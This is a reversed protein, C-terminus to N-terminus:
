VKKGALYKNWVERLLLALIGSIIIELIHYGIFTMVVAGSLMGAVYPVIILRPLIM